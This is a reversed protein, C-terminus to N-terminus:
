CHSSFAGAPTLLAIVDYVRREPSLRFGSCETAPVSKETLIEQIGAKAPVVTAQTAITLICDGQGPCPGQTYYGPRHSVIAPLSVRGWLRRM